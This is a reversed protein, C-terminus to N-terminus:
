KNSNRTYFSNVAPQGTYNAGACDDAGLYELEFMLEQSNELFLLKKRNNYKLGVDSLLKKSMPKVKDGEILWLNALDLHAILFGNNTTIYTISSFVISVCIMSFLFQYRFLM